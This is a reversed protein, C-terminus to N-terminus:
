PNLTARYEQWSQNINIPTSFNQYGPKTITLTYSGNSLGNLYAQGPMLCASVFGISIDQLTPTVLDDETRLFVKYRLYRNNAQSASIIQGSSTYFSGATGDPGVYNWTNNDNNAAIQVRISAQSSTLANWSITKHSISATGFDITSSELWEDSMSAYQGGVELLHIEGSDSEDINISKATFGGSAWNTHTVTEVKTQRSATMPGSLTVTADNLFQGLANQVTVLLASQNKLAVRWQSTHNTNPNVTIPWALDYGAIDYQADLNQFTYSDWEVDNKLFSGTANTAVNGNYKYVGPGILKGGRMNFDVNGVSTCFTDRTLLNFTSLRDISFSLATVAGEAVTAHPKSPNPNQPDGIAYTRESSYGNKSVTIFYTLSSTATDVLQFMGNNTTVENLNILPTVSNNIISVNAQPVPVGSADFVNVFLAGRGTSNELNIPAITTTVKAPLFRPCTPCTLELEILKYDAPATDNPTGGVVGDFPDDINRVSANLIFDIGSYQINKQQPLIGAPVGGITGVSEYPINRVVELENDLVSLGINNLQSAVSIDLINAYSMYVATGIIIFLASGILTEILTFGKQLGRRNM